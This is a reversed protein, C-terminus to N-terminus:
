PKIFKEQIEDATMYAGGLQVKEMTTEYDSSTTAAKVADRLAQIM